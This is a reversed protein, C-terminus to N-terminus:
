AVQGLGRPLLVQEISDRTSLGLRKRLRYRSQSVGYVGINQARAIERSTLGLRIMCATRLEGQTMGPGISLVWSIYGPCNQEFEIKYSEWDETTFVNMARLRSLEEPSPTSFDWVHSSRADQDDRAYFPRSANGRGTRYWAGALFLVLLWLGLRYDWFPSGNGRQAEVPSKSESLRDAIMTSHFHQAERYYAMADTPRGELMSWHYREYALTLDWAMHGQFGANTASRARLRALFGRDELRRRETSRLSQLRAGEYRLALWELVPAQNEFAKPWPQGHNALFDLCRGVVGWQEHVSAVSALILVGALVKPHRAEEASSQLWQELKQLHQSDLSPTQTPRAVRIPVLGNHHEQCTWKWGWETAAPAPGPFFMPALGCPDSSDSRFPSTGAPVAGDTQFLVLLCSLLTIKITFLLM